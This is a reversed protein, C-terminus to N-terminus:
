VGNQFVGWAPQNREPMPLADNQKHRAGAFPIVNFCTFFIATGM